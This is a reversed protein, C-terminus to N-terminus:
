EDVVEGGVTWVLSTEEDAGGASCVVTVPENESTVVTPSKIVPNNPPTYVLFLYFLFVRTGFWLKGKERCSCLFPDAKLIISIYKSISKGQLMHFAVLEDDLQPHMVRCEYEISATATITMENKVVDETIDYTTDM